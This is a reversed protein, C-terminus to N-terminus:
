DDTIKERIERFVMALENHDLKMLNLLDQYQFPDLHPMVRGNEWNRVSTVSVGLAQAIDKQTLGQARRLKMLPSHNGVPM